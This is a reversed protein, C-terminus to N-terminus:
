MIIQPYILINDMPRDRYEQSITSLVYMKNHTISRYKKQYSINDSFVFLLEFYSDLYVTNKQIVAQLFVFRKTKTTMSKSQRLFKYCFLNEM